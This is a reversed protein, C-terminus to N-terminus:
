LDVKSWPNDKRHQILDAVSYVGMEKYRYLEFKNPNKGVQTAYSKMDKIYINLNHYDIPDPKSMIHDKIGIETMKRTMTMRTM